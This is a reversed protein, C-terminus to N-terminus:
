WRIRVGGYFERGEVDSLTNVINRTSGLGTPLFAGFNDFVNNVGAYIRVRPAEKLTYHAYINHFTESGTKFFLPDGQELDLDNVGGDEYRASWTFRFDKHEWALRVRAENEAGGILGISDETQPGSLSTFTFNDTLYHTFRINLDFIGPINQIETAWNLTADIGESKLSNLNEQRNVVQTVFGTTADRTIVDCFRNNPFSVDTYCLDATLQTSVAGIADDVTINYYDVIFNFDDIFSPTIIAGVTFTDATEEKLLNNGANPGSVSSDFEFSDGANDPDAFFAQIGAESLCNAAIVSPDAGSGAPATIGTGDPNLGNCPDLLNDFDGRPDSFFETLTPARQSRSYQGRVRLQSSPSWSGGVNYSSVTGVTSYDALRGALQLSLNDLIPIDLEAFGEIVDFEAEFDPVPTVSTEERLNDPDGISDQEEKRYEFGFAAKVTGAPLEYLDGNMSGAITKQRRETTLFGTYRIYDAAATSISGEGFINLPVCGEARADADDCQFGGAGDSEINLANQINQYDLENLYTQNQTFSGYTGYLNWNWNDWVNGELGFATRWTERENLRQRNGVETFRRRWSVSGSRTEEVEPPIFPHNSAITGIDQSFGLTARNGIDTGSSANLAANITNSETKSYQVDFFGTVSPNLELSSKLATNFVEVSPSLSRGPRFNFGDVDTEFSFAGTRGIDADPLLSRDNFWVGGVNWADDGEFLGGPLFSSGSPNFCAAGSTDCDGFNTENGFLQDGRGPNPVNFEINAISLPRTEDALIATEDDYTAGILIYGRDGAFKSGYTADFTIEREGSAEAKGLRGNLELGEFDDKLIINAVGAIADSGYIASAGGTTVEISKVMGSPITQTSVREGNGSNSVARRGDILTLTRNGGLRRLNVTSLGSNQTSLNTNEASLDFDVGPIETLIEGIDTSGIEQIEQIDLIQVPIAATVNSRRIRSGTVVIEDTTLAANPPANNLNTPPEQATASTGVLSSFITSLLLKQKPKMPEGPDSETETKRRHITIVGSETLDGIISTGEFMEVLAQELSYVGKLPRSNTALMDETQFLVSRKYRRALAKVADEANQTPIELFIESRSVTQARVYDWPNGILFVFVILFTVFLRVRNLSWNKAVLREYCSSWLLVDTLGCSDELRKYIKKELLM